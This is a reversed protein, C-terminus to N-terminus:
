VPPWQSFNSFIVGLCWIMPQLGIVSPGRQAFLYFVSLSELIVIFFNSGGALVLDRPLPGALSGCLGVPRVFMLLFILLLIRLLLIILFLM